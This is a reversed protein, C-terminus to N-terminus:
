ITAITGVAVILGGNPASAFDAVDRETEGGTIRAHIPSLEVGM